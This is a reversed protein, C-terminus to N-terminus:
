VSEKASLISGTPDTVNPSPLHEEKLKRIKRNSNIQITRENTPSENKQRHKKFFLYIFFALSGGIIAAIGILIIFFAMTPEKPESETASVYNIHILPISLLRVGEALINM